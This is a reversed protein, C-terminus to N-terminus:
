SLGNDLSMRAAEAKTIPRAAARCKRSVADMRVAEMTTEATAVDPATHVDAAAMHMAM